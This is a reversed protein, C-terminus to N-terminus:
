EFVGIVKIILQEKYNEESKDGEGQNAENAERSDAVSVKLIFVLRALIDPQCKPRPLRDSRAPAITHGPLRQESTARSQNGSLRHTIRSLYM